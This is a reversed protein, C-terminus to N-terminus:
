RLAKSREAMEGKNTSSTHTIQLQPHPHPHSPQPSPQTSATASESRGPASTLRQSFHPDIIRLRDMDRASLGQDDSRHPSLAFEGPPGLHLTTSSRLCPLISVINM